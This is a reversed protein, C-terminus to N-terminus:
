REVFTMDPDTSVLINCGGKLLAEVAAECGRITAYHIPAWGSNDCLADICDKLDDNDFNKVKKLEEKRCELIWELLNADNSYAATHLVSRGHSPNLTYMVDFSQSMIYKALQERAPNDEKFPMQGLELNKPYKQLCNSLFWDMQKSLYDSHSVPKVDDDEDDEFLDPDYVYNRYPSEAILASM